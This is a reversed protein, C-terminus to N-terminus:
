NKPNKEDTKDKKLHKLIYEILTRNKSLLDGIIGLALFNTSMVILMSGIVLSQIKGDEITDNFFYFYLFRVVPIFGIFFTIGGLWLFIKLPHYMAYVRVIDISSKRIHQFMNKFLRSPRTPPNTQIPVSVMKIKKNAAQLTTDLVYSFSSTVNLELLAQKSYARFGSVADKLEKENALTVTVKTGLWQFFKKIPSFTKIKATQRDGIVIDAEGKLIPEILKPIDTSKYQNDGDTNVLIDAGNKLANEVGYRFANGLGKNGTYSVIHDVKLNTAVQVTADSSGDDVIQTEIIDIKEIFKPIDNLVLPLTKEENFCPIQIILKLKSNM